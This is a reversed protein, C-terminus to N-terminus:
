RCVSDPFRQTHMCSDMLSWIQRWLTSVGRQVDHAFIICISGHFSVFVGRGLRCPGSSKCRWYYFHPSCLKYVNWAINPHNEKKIRKQAQSCCSVFHDMLLQHCGMWWWISLEMKWFRKLVQGTTQSEVLDRHFRCVKKQSTECLWFFWLGSQMKILDWLYLDSKFQTLSSPLPFASDIHTLPAVFDCPLRHCFNVLYGEDGIRICLYRLEQQLRGMMCDSFVAIAGVCVKHHYRVLKVARGGVEDCRSGDHRAVRKRGFRLCRHKVGSKFHM